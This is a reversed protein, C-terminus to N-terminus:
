GAHDTEFDTGTGPPGRSSLTERCLEADIKGTRLKHRVCDLATLTHHNVDVGHTARLNDKYRAEERSHAADLERRALSLNPGVDILMWTAAFRSAPKALLRGLQQVTARNVNERQAQCHVMWYGVLDLLKDPHHNLDPEALIADIRSADIEIPSVACRHASAPVAPLAAAAILFAAVAIRM